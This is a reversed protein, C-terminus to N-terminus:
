KVALYFYTSSSLNLFCEYIYDKEYNGTTDSNDFECNRVSFGTSTIELANIRTSSGSEYDVPYGDYTYASRILERKTRCYKRSYDSWQTDDYDTVDYWYWPSSTYGGTMMRGVWVFKPRFGLSISQLTTSTSEANGAYTGVVVGGSSNVGLATKLNALTIKKGTAASVDGVAIYDGMAIGTAALATAGNILAYLGLPATKQSTGGYEIALAGTSDGLGLASRAQAATKTTVAGTGGGVLFAGSTFSTAGTGGHSVGLTGTIASADMSAPTDGKEGKLAAKQADTLQDFTLADGKDGKDGKEGKEGPVGQIGQAGTDGKDGKEGKLEAKQEGTLQDFTLADGTDGKAGADGKDGKEGKEGKEGHLSDLWDSLTGTFGDRVALEYADAGIIAPIEMWTGNKNRVRLICAM